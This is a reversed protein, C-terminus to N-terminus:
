ESKTPIVRAGATTAVGDSQKSRRSIPKVLRMVILFAAVLFHGVFYVSKWANLTAMGELLCFSIGFYNMTWHVEFWGGFHYLAVLLRSRRPQKNDDYVLPRFVRHYEADVLQCLWASLFFLYFGPYFGHWFASTFKAVINAFSKPALGLVSTPAVELVRLYIYDKLWSSIKKNWGNLIAPISDGL